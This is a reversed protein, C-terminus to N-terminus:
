KKKSTPEKNYVKDGCSPCSVKILESKTEWEYNCKKCKLKTKQKEM